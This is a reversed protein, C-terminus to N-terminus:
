DNECEKRLSDIWERNNDFWKQLDFLDINEGDCVGCSLVITKEYCDLNKDKNYIESVFRDFKDISFGGEMYCRVKGNDNGVNMSDYHVKNNIKYPPKRPWSSM